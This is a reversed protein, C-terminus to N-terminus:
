QGALADEVSGDVGIVNILLFFGLYLKATLSLACYWVETEWYRRPPLAQYFLQVLGFSFFIIVTGYIAALVWTPISRDSLKKLDHRAIELHAIIASWAAIM